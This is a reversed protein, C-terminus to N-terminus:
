WMGSYNDTCSLFTQKRVDYCDVVCYNQFVGGTLELDSNNIDGGPKQYTVLCNVVDQPYTVCWVIPHAALKEKSPLAASSHKQLVRPVASPGPLVVGWM